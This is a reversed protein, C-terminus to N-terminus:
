EECAVEFCDVFSYYRNTPQYDSTYQLLVQIRNVAGVWFMRGYQFEQFAGPSDVAEGTAYGLREKVRAGTGEWYVKGFKDGVPYFGAPIPGVKAPDAPGLDGFRQYTGDAFFVYVPDGSYSSDAELWVMLGYEFQQVAANTGREGGSWSYPCGLEPQIHPQDGWVQGFGRMPVETCTLPQPAAPSAEVLAAPEAQPLAEVKVEAQVVPLLGLGPGATVLSAAIWGSRDPRDIQLWDGAAVRGVVLFSEGRSITGFASFQLGPGQRLNAASVSPRLRAEVTELHEKREYVSLVDQPVDILQTEDYAGAPVPILRANPGAPLVQSHEFYYVTQDARLLAGNEFAARVPLRAKLGSDLRTVLLGTYSASSVVEQWENVRWLQGGAAWYLTDDHSVLRTLEGALPVAELVADDIDIIEQESFGFARFTDWNYIHQRAGDENLYFLGPGSGKLLSGSRYPLSPAIIVVRLTSEAQKATPTPTPTGAEARAPGPMALAAQSRSGMVLALAALLLFIFRIPNFYLRKM